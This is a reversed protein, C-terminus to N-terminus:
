ESSSPCIMAEVLEEVSYFVPIELIKAIEVERDAGPSEGPLRLVADCQRLWALGIAMWVEYEHPAMMHLFHCLHPVYPAFDLHILRDAVGMAVRVNRAVDGGSYRGAIYVRKMEGDEGM